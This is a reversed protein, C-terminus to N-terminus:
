LITRKLNKYFMVTKGNIVAYRVENNKRIKSVDTELKSLDIYNNNHLQVYDGTDYASMYKKEFVGKNISNIVDPFIKRYKMSNRKNIVAFFEGGEARRQTGDNKIGLSIDNGSSHSGGQLLEVTGDGYTEARKAMQASRIKAIAFSGFMIAIAPIALYPLALSAWIKAAATALSGAQQVTEIAAQARQARQQEKLAKEQTKKALDLDKQAQIVNNAYGNNRAEIEADLVSRASDIEKDAATVAAEAAKVKADLFKNVNDIAYQVSTNIAEKQEDDLKLGVLSFIDKTREDKSSKEIEQNIKSITNQITQIEIDTMKVGSKENLELIKELREKEMKLRYRTKEEETTRMLNFESEQLAQTQDFLLMARENSFDATQKLIMSNYKANIDTENQRLNEPLDINQRLEIEREKNLM